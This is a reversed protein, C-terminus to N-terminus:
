NAYEWQQQFRWEPCSISGESSLLVADSPLNYRCLLESLSLALLHCQLSGASSVPLSHRSTSVLQRAWSRCFSQATQASVLFSPAGWPIQEQCTQSGSQYLAGRGRGREWQGDLLQHRVGCYVHKKIWTKSHPSQLRTTLLAARCHQLRPNLGWCPFFM